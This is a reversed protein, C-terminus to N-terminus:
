KPCSKKFAIVRALDAKSYMKGIMATWMKKAARKYEAVMAPPTKLPQLRGAMAARAKRSQRRVLKRTRRAWKRGLVEALKKQEATAEDYIDNRIVGAGVAFGIPTSSVYSVHQWWLLTLAAVPSAYFTDIKGTQLATLVRPVGMPIGNIGMQKFMWRSMPDSNWLWVRAKQLAAKSDIKRKSYMYIFGVDGPQGLRFGKKRFRKRMLPWMKHRVCYMQRLSEYMMPLELVRISREIMSLGVSTLAAGDLQKLRMKRVVAREDGQVGNPYIKVKIGTHKEVEKAAREIVDMWVSGSPALTAIRRVTKQARAETAGGLAVAVVM